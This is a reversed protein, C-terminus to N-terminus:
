LALPASEEGAIPTLLGAMLHVPAWPGVAAALGAVLAAVCLCNAPRRVWLELGVSGTRM